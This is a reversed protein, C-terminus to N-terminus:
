RTEPMNQKDCADCGRGSGFLRDVAHQLRQMQGNLDAVLAENSTPAALGLNSLVSRLTHMWADGGCRDYTSPTSLDREIVMTEVPGGGGARFMGDLAAYHRPDFGPRISTCAGVATANYRAGSRDCVVYWLDDATERVGLLRVIETGGAAVCLDNLIPRVEAALSELTLGVAPKDAQSVDPRDNECEKWQEPEVPPQLWGEILGDPGVKLIIYDGGGVDGHCLFADPVYDDRWKAVRRTANRLWYEGEDCVKYHINAQTGHPWNLVLGDALRIVPCWLDGERLPVRAGDVDEVGNVTADEWYRVEAGVEIHTATQLANDRM